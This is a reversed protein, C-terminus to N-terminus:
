GNVSRLSEVLHELSTPDVGLGGQFPDSMALILYLVLGVFVTYLTVLAVLPAQPRYAGFCAMTILFGFIIAYIYIPPQALANDLRILRYDSIADGDALILSLLQEQTSTAPELALV